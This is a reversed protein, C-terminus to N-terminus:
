RRGAQLGHMQAKRGQAFRAQPAGCRAQPARLRPPFGSDCSWFVSTRVAFAWYRIVNKEHITEFMDRAGMLFEEGYRHQVGQPYKQESQEFFGECPRASADWAEEGEEKGADEEAHREHRM